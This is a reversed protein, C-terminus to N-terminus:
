QNFFQEYSLSHFINWDSFHVQCKVYRKETVHRLTLSCTVSDHTVDNYVVHLWYRKFLLHVICLFAIISYLHFCISSGYKSLKSEKLSPLGSYFLWEAMVKSLKNKRKRDPCNLNRKIEFSNDRLNQMFIIQFWIILVSLKQKRKM